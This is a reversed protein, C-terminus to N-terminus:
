ATIDAYKALDAPMIHSPDERWQPAALAAAVLGSCIVTGPIGFSFKLDTLLSLGISVITIFGYDAHTKLEYRVFTEADSREVENLNSHVLHFEVNLYKNYPSAVVGRGLAEILDDTSVWVAHNWHAFARQDGRFRLAQGLQILRSVLPVPGRKGNKWVGASVLMYDGMHWETPMQGPGFREVTVGPIPM